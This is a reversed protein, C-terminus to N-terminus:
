RSLLFVRVQLPMMRQFELSETIWIKLEGTTKRCKLITTGSACILTSIARSLAARTVSNELSRWRQCPHNYNTQFIKLCTVRVHGLGARSYNKSQTLQIM